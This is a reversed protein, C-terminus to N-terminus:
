STPKSRHLSVAYDASSSFPERNWTSWRGELLLGAQECSRDYESLLYGENLQFGALLAGNPALHARLNRALTPRSATPCFLPVNGAMVIVDFVRGLSITAVDGVFWDLEPALRKAETIMSEDLDVGVVDIGHRALEVAVRGTGCRADLVAKPHLSRILTAEGHVDVGSKALADFRAQYTPGNWSKGDFVTMDCNFGIFVASTSAANQAM